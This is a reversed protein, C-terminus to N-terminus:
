EKEEEARPEMPNLINMIQGIIELGSTQTIKNKIIDRDVELLDFEGGKMMESSVNYRRQAEDTKVLERKDDKDINHLLARRCIVGVTLPEGKIETIRQILDSILITNNEGVDKIIFDFAGSLSVDTIDEGGLDKLVVDLNIRM